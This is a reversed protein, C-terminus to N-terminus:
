RNPVVVRLDPRVMGSRVALMSRWDPVALSPAQDVLLFAMSWFFVCLYYGPAFMWDEFFAHILAALVVIALPVAAHAADRTRFMWIVTQALKSVVTCLLLLFPLVGLVGVWSFIALYSSGHEASIASSSAFRGIQENEVDGNDSTGFGTGFWLHKQITGITDEWPSSRSAMIGESPDKGKFIVASTSASIMKSFVEPRVIATFAAVIALVGVGLGFLRYRRLALCLLGCSILAGLLAARAQSSFTLYMALVFFFVRRRHAFPEQKLLTGWLLIPAAVVGMVAGLSNPNGMVEKGALYFAAIVAVFIECGTLLGAFFRNERGSVALRVGTAAYVFLLFLSVVKLSSPFRYRSVAASVAAALVAFFSLVHFYGLRQRQEKLMMVAGVVAGVGLIAWRGMIFASSMPLDVGALLFTVMFVAFFARKYLWVAAVLCEFGLLGALYTQSTFYAPRAMALLLLLLGGCIMGAIALLKATRDHM